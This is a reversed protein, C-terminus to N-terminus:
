FLQSVISSNRQLLSVSTYIALAGRSATERQFGMVLLTKVTNGSDAVSPSFFSLYSRVQSILGFIGILLLMALWLAHTPVVPTIKFIIM